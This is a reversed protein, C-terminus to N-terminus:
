ESQSPLTAEDDLVDQVYLMTILVVVVATLPTALAIGALGFSLGMVVQMLITLGPPMSVTKREVLPQLLYSEAMQLGVFLIVVSLALGPSTTFAILVAPVAALIPGIYPIFDLLGTLFGLVLALPVGLLGLGIATAIGILLMSLLKGRLWLSLTEGIEDIVQRGRRRHTPPVLKLIGDTYLRPNGALYVAVFVVVFFNGVVGLVGSFLGGARALLQSTHQLIQQADPPNPLIQSFQPHTAFYDRVRELSRPLDDALQQAQSAISPALLWVALSLLGAVLVLVLGLAMGRRLHPLRQLLNVADNILVAVLVSAFALLVVSGAFWLLALILLFLLGAAYCIVVRAAFSPPPDAKM